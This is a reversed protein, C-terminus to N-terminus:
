LEGGPPMLEVIGSSGDVIIMQGDRITQSADRTQMVSPIRYERAVIAAHQSLSGEDLVLGGLIAFAPTWEPGVNAAVLIDGPHIHPREKGEQVLVARGRARGSAASAGVLTHGQLGRQPLEKEDADKKEPAAGLTPPPQMKKRRAMEACRERVLPRQDPREKAQALAALEAISFHLVDDAHEILNKQVMNRGVEFIAERATGGTCQEMFYNHDELFRVHLTARLLGDNFRRLKEPDNKLQRRMRRAANIRETRAEKELQDLRDLDQEAYSAIIELAITPEMNWTPTAFGSSSGYGRGSRLGYTALMHQFRAHFHAARPNNTLTSLPAFHRQAFLDSLTSDSQVIGALERLKGILRTMRNDIAQLYINAEHAPRGSLECFEEHWGPLPKPRGMSWHLHGAVYGQTEMCSRLYAVLDAFHACTRRQKKLGKLRQEIIGRLVEEFYTTGRAFSDDVRKTQRAHRKALEAEDVRPARTYMYGNSFHLIHNAAMSSGIEQYCDRAHRMYEAMFDQELRYFPGRRHSWCYNIALDADWHQDPAISDNITTIPRAQLIRIEGQTVAFEIDQPAAFLAEIKQGYATLAKLQDFDLAPQDKQAAETAITEIGGTSVAAVHSHKDAIEATLLQGSQPDLTFRDTPASGAVVGEGLGLAASVLYHNVGSQPDRTFLVGAASPALQRQVVVAMQARDIGHRQRYSLAHASFLSAWVKKIAILLEDFSTINLFSDYQGAFSAGALDEATSSSRVSVAGAGLNAYARHIHATLASPLACSHIAPGLTGSADNQNQATPLDAPLQDLISQFVETSVIFASPVPLGAQLMKALASGKAGSRAPDTAATHDLPFISPTM